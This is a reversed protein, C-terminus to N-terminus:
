MCVLGLNHAFRSALSVLFSGQHPGHPPSGRQGAGPGPDGLPTKSSISFPLALLRFRDRYFFPLLFGGYDRPTRRAVEERRPSSNPDQLEEFCPIESFFCMCTIIVVHLFISICHDVLFTVFGTILKCALVIGPIHAFKSTLNTFM